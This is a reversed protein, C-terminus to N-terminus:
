MRKGDADFLHLQDQRPRFWVRDDFSLKLDAPIRATVQNAGAGLRVFTENGLDEAVYVTAPFWGPQEVRSVEINEPRVGVTIQTGNSASDLPLSLGAGTFCGSEVRGALLNMAPSGVFRAVFLNAPRHYVNAPTDYQVIRGAEIVAIRHALTMAEAQDHTVYLMVTNLEHQLHKLEARTEMRLQADLNSLPEDMLFARPRRVLARAFAVRQRQGGSLERPKRQLLQGLGLKEAVKRVEAAMEEAPRRRVRLPYGINEAVTMHPYLAYSQFVMAVDRDRPDLGTIDRQGIRVRGADPIELGAVIRLLTTKGCGSPGLLVVFEGEAAQLSVDELASFNGFRKTVRDIELM